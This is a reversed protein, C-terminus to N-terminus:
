VRLHFACGAAHSRIWGDTHVVHGAHVETQTEDPDLKNVTDPCFLLTPAVTEQPNPPFLVVILRSEGTAPWILTATWNAYPLSIACLVRRYWTPPNDDKAESTKVVETGIISTMSPSAGAGASERDEHHQSDVFPVPYEYLNRGDAAWALVIYTRIRFIKFRHQGAAYLVGEYMVRPHDTHISKWPTGRQVFDQKFSRLVSEYRPPLMPDEVLEFLDAFQDWTRSFLYSGCESFYLPAQEDENEKFQTERTSPPSAKGQDRKPFPVRMGKEVEEKTINRVIRPAAMNTYDILLVGSATTVAVVNWAPHFAYWRAYCSVQIAAGVVVKDSKKSLRYLVIFDAKTDKTPADPNQPRGWAGIACGKSPSFRFDLCNLGSIRADVEPNKDVDLARLSSDQTSVFWLFPGVWIALATHKPSIAVGCHVLAAKIVQVSNLLISRGPPSLATCSSPQLNWLSWSVNCKVITQHPEDGIPVAEAYLYAAAVDKLTSFSPRCASRRIRIIGPKNAQGLDPVGAVPTAYVLKSAVMALEQFATRRDSFVIGATGCKMRFEEQQDRVREPSPKWNSLAKELTGEKLQLFYQRVTWPARIHGRRACLDHDACCVPEEEIEDEDSWDGGNIMAQM